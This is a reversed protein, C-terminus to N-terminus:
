ASKKNKKDDDVETATREISLSEYYCRTAMM